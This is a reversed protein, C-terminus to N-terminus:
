NKTNILQLRVDGPALGALGEADIRAALVTAAGIVAPIDLGAPAPGHYRSLRAAGRGLLAVAGSKNGRLAHTLGVALQALGQWLDRQAQDTTKWVAELVEHAHFPRDEDILQQATALAADPTVDFDEPV